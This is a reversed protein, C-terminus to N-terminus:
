WGVWGGACAYVVVIAATVAIDGGKNWITVHTVEPGVRVLM